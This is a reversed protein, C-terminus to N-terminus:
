MLLAGGCVSRSSMFSAIRSAIMSVRTLGNLAADRDLCLEGLAQGEKPAIPHLNL